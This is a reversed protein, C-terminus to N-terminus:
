AGRAVAYIWWRTRGLIGPPEAVAEIDHKRGREDILEWTPEIQAIEPRKRVEFRTNWEGVRTDARLRESGGRDHRIAWAAHAIKEADGYQGPGVKTEPGPELLVVKRDGEM